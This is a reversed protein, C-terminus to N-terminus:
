PESADYRTPQTGQGKLSIGNISVIEVNSNNITTHFENIQNSIAAIRSRSSMRPRDDRAIRKTRSLIENTEAQMKAIEANLRDAQKIETQTQADILKHSQYRGYIEDGGLLLAGVGLAAATWIPLEIDLDSGHWNIKPFVNRGGFKFTISEGSRAFDLCLDSRGRTRLIPYRYYRDGFNYDYDEGLALAYLNHLNHLLEAVQGAPLATFSLYIELPADPNENM